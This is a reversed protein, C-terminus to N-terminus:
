ENQPMCAYWWGRKDYKGCQNCWPKNSTRSWFDVDDWREWERGCNGTCCYTGEPALSSSTGRKPDHTSSSSMTDDHTAVPLWYNMPLWGTLHGHAWGECHLDPSIAVGDGQRLSLYESGYMHGDFDAVMYGPIADIPVCTPRPPPAAPSEDQPPYPPPPPQMRAVLPPSMRLMDLIATLDRSGRLDLQDNIQRRLQSTDSMESGCESMRCALKAQAWIAVSMYLINYM